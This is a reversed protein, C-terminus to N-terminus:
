AEATVAGRRYKTYARIGDILLFVAAVFLIIGIIAAFWYGVIPGTTLVKGEAIGTIAMRMCNRIIIVLSVMTTAYMFWMPIFAPKANKKQSVLWVSAILLAMSAMLQNASGFLVWIYSFSGWFVFLFTLGLAILTGVYPNRVAPVAKGALETLAIRMFRIVLHLVTIALVVILIPGYITGWGMPLALSHYLRDLGSGFINFWAGGKTAVAATVLAILALMMELFMAGACVPRVDIEKELQRSTGTSSVISHWGSIAGCAITVFLMPWLPLGGVTFKTAVPATLTPHGVFIGIVAGIMGIFIIYFGLYNIPQVFSWVPMTSGFFSFLLAFLTWLVWNARAGPLAIQVWHGAVLAGYFIVLGIISILVLNIKARYLLFGVLVGGLALFIIPFPVWPNKSMFVGCVNAFSAAVLLLYLYIYILLINRTRPSILTYSIGGFTKGDNRVSVLSSMYDHIWGILFTGFIIWLFGPLWGWKIAIIPGLVPAAGAISKFQYGFLISKRTPMFDVGDAYMKAPTAKKADTKIIRKDVWKSYFQMGIFYIILGIIIIWVANM